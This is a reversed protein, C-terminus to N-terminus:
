PEDRGLARNWGIVVRPDIVRAACGGERVEIEVARWFAGGGPADGELDMPTPRSMAGDCYVAIQARQRGASHQEFYHAGVQYRGPIPSAVAVVEPGHGRVDDRLLRPDGRGDPSGWSLANGAAVNCNAYHCDDDSGWGARGLRLLHLDLDADDCAAEAREVCSREPPDWWLEVRLGPGPEAVITHECSDREGQEDVVDFRLVFDGVVDPVFEAGTPAPRASSLPAHLLTWRRTVVPSASRVDARLETRESAIVRRADGCNAGPATGRVIVRQVCSGIDVAPDISSVHVLFEGEREALFIARGHAVPTISAAPDDVVRWGLAGSFGSPLAAVLLQGRGARANVPVLGCM